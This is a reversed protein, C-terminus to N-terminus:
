DFKEQKLYVFCNDFYSQMLQKVHATTAHSIGNQLHIRALAMNHVTIFLKLDGTDFTLGPGRPSERLSAMSLFLMQLTNDWRNCLHFWGNFQRDLAVFYRRIRMRNAQQAREGASYGEISLSLTGANYAVLKPTAMMSGLVELAPGPDLREIENRTITLVAPRFGHLHLKTLPPNMACLYVLPASASESQM